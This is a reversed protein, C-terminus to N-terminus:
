LLRYCEEDLPSRVDVLKFIQLQSLDLELVCNLLMKVSQTPAILREINICRFPKDGAKETIAYYISNFSQRQEGSDLIKIDQFQEIALM